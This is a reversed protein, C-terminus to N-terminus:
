SVYWSGKTLVLIWFIVLECAVIQITYALFESLCLFAVVEDQSIGDDYDGSVAGWGNRSFAYEDFFHFKLDHFHGNLSCHVYHITEHLPITAIYLPIFMLCSSAVIFVLNLVLAMKM